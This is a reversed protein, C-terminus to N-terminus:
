SNKGGNSALSSYEKLNKFAKFLGGNNKSDKDANKIVESVLELQLEEVAKIAENVVDDDLDIPNGNIYHANMAPHDHETIGFRDGFNRILDNPTVAGNTFMKILMDLDAIEDQMDISDIEFYYDYAEYISWIIEKNFVSEILEQRPRIVSQNYIKTSESAVNGALNGSEIIGIRYAPVGHATLVEDRNDKRFLRFSAEKVDTSLPKINIDVKEGQGNTPLSMVMTSHPNIAMNRFLQQIDREVETKGDADVPGPDFDGTITVAYAPIGFNEFFSINYEKRNYDGVVAGLAPIIDPMGYYASRPHYNNIWIMETAVKSNDLTGLEYETGTNKDIDKEYNLKKFWVKKTGVQQLFKKGKNHIRVTTAPVHLMNKIPNDHVKEERIVEICAYGISEYDTFVKDLMSSLPESLTNFINELEIKTNIATENTEDDLYSYIGWGTGAVDRAKTNVCRAHYTNLELINALQVPNYLPELIGTHGGYLGSFNDTLLQNSEKDKDKEKLAYKELTDRRVVQKTSTVFFEPKRSM